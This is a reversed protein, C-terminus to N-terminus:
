LEEIDIDLDEAKAKKIALDIKEEETEPSTGSFYGMGVATPSVNSDITLPPEGYVDVFEEYVPNIKDRKADTVNLYKPPYPLDQTYTTGIVQEAENLTNQGYKAKTENYAEDPSMFQSLENYHNVAMQAKTSIGGSSASMMAAQNNKIQQMKLGSYTQVLGMNAKNIENALSLSMDNMMDNQQKELGITQQLKEDYTMAKDEWIGAIRAGFEGKIGAIAEDKQASLVNLDSLYRGQVERFDNGLKDDDLNKQKRIQNLAGVGAQSATALRENMASGFGATVGAWTENMIRNKQNEVMQERLSANFNLDNQKQQENLQEIALDREFTTAGKMANFSQQKATILSSQIDEYMSEMKDFTDFTNQMSAHLKAESEQTFRAGNQVIGNVTNMLLNLNEQTAEVQTNYVDNYAGLAQNANLKGSVLASTISEASIKPAYKGQSLFQSVPDGAQESAATGTGLFDSTSTRFGTALDTSGQEQKLLNHAEVQEPTAYGNKYLSRWDANNSDATLEGSKVASLLTQADAGQFKGVINPNAETTAETTAEPSNPNTSAQGQVNTSAGAKQDRASQDAAAQGAALAEEQSNYSGQMPTGNINSNDGVALDGVALREQNIASSALRDQESGTSEYQAQATIAALERDAEEQTVVGGGKKSKGVRNQIKDAMVQNGIARTASESNFVDYGADGFTLLNLQSRINNRKNERNQTLLAQNQYGSAVPDGKADLDALAQELQSIKKQNKQLQEGKYLNFQEPSLQQQLLQLELDRRGEETNSVTIGDITINPLAKSGQAKKFDFIKKDLNKGIVGQAVDRAQKASQFAQKGTEFASQLNPDQGLFEQFRSMNETQQINGQDAGSQSLHFGEALDAFNFGGGKSLEAKETETIDSGTGFLSRFGGTKQINQGSIGETSQRLLELKRQASMGSQGSLPTIAM